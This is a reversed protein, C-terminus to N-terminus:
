RYSSAVRKVTATFSGWICDIGALGTIPFNGERWILDATVANILFRANRASKDDIEHLWM